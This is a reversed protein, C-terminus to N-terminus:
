DNRADKRARIATAIREATHKCGSVFAKVAQPDTDAYDDLHQADRDAVEASEELGERRGQERADATLRAAEKSAKPDLAVDQNWQIAKRLMELPTDTPDYTFTNCAEAVVVAKWPNNRESEVHETLLRAFEPDLSLMAYGEPLGFGSSLVHSIRRTLSRDTYAGAEPCWERIWLVDGVRYDRDNLRFEATKRGELMAQFPEPWCKIQHEKPERALADVDVTM